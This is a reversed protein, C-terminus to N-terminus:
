SNAQPVVSTETPALGTGTPDASISMTNLNIVLSDACFLIWQSERSRIDAAVWAKNVADAYWTIFEDVKLIANRYRLRRYTADQRSSLWQNVEALEWTNLGSTDPMPSVPPATVAHKFWPPATGFNLAQSYWQRATLSTTYNPGAM